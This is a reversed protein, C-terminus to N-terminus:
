LVDAPEPMPQQTFGVGVEEAKDIDSIVSALSEVDANMGDPLLDAADKQMQVLEKPDDGVSVLWGCDRHPYESPPFYYCGDVKCCRQLLATGELEEPLDVAAWCNNEDKTTIMTEISFKGAWDPELLIGNAAHWVVDPWNRVLKRLSGSSPLGGRCTPDTFYAKDGAIRIECHFQQRYHYEGFYHQLAKLVDQVQKPMDEFPTVAGFYSKDKGEIGNLMTSPWQRDVIWLDGGIEIDAKIEDFALFKKHNQWPGLQVALQDLWIGDMKMNRFQQTEMDGRHRSVKVWVNERDQLHERLEALGECVTHPPVELGVGELLTIFFSRSLELHTALGAGWVAKGIDRLYYQMGGMSVDPFCFLDIESMFTWPERVVYLEEFGKGISDQHVSPYARCDPNWYIVQKCDDAMRRAFDLYSGTDIVLCTVESIDKV